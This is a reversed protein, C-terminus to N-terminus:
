TDQGPMNSNPYADDWIRALEASLDLAACERQLLEYNLTDRNARFLAAVDAQDIIRGAVLKFVILDECALVYANTEWGPFETAVRRGLAAEQFSHDAFILDVQIDFDTEDPQFIFQAFRQTGVTVIPPDHKPRLGGMRFANLVDELDDHDVHILFDADKTYRIHDWVSLAVGGAVAWSLGERNLLAAVHKLTSLLLRAVM